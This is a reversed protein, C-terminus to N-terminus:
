KPRRVLSWVAVVAVVLAFAIAVFVLKAGLLLKEIM